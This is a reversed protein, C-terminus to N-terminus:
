HLDRVGVHVGVHMTLQVKKAFSAHRTGMTMSACFCPRVLSVALLDSCGCVCLMYVHLYVHM